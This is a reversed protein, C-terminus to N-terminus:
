SGFDELKELWAEINKETIDSISDYDKKHSPMKDKTDFIVECELETKDECEYDYYSYHEYKRGYTNKVTDVTFTTKDGKKSYKGSIKYEDTYTYDGYYYSYDETVEKYILKYKGSSKDITFSVDYAEYGLDVSLTADFKKKDNASVAYSIKTDGASFTIKDSKKIGKEGCELEFVTEKDYDLELKLLKSSSRATAIKLTLNDFGGSIEDCIDEIYEKNDEFWEEYAESLSDLEIDYANKLLPLIADEHKDLFKQVDKSDRMYDFLDWIIAELADDDVTIEILRVKKKAGSLRIETNKSSIEANDIIINWVKKVVKKAVKQFDKSVDDGNKLFNLVSTISEFTYEDLSYDSKSDPAFISDNLDEEAESFEFGYAGNLVKDESVYCYDKSIYMDGAISNKDAKIDVDSLLIADESFYVKGKIHSNKFYDEGDQEIGTLSVEVSGKKLLKVLPELEDRDLFDESLDALSRAAVNTPAGSVAVVATIAGVVAVVVSVIIILLKKSM